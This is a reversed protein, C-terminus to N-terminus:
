QAGREARAIRAANTWAEYISGPPILLHSVREDDRHAEIESAIREREAAVVKEAAARKEEAVQAPSLYGAALVARAINYDEHDPIDYTELGDPTAYQDPVDGNWWSPAVTQSVIRALAGVETDLADGSPDPPTVRVSEVGKHFMWGDRNLFHDGCECLYHIPGIYQYGYGHGDGGEHWPPESTEDAAPPSQDTEAQALLVDALTVEDASLDCRFCGPVRTTHNHPSQDTM